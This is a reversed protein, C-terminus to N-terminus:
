WSNKKRSLGWKAACINQLFARVLSAMAVWPSLGADRAVATAAAVIESGRCCAAEEKAAERGEAATALRGSIGLGLVLM